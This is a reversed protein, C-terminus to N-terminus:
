CNEWYDTHGIEKEVSKEVRKFYAPGKDILIDMRKKAEKSFEAINRYVSSDPATKDLNIQLKIEIRLKEFEDSYFDYEKQLEPLQLYRHIYFMSAGLLGLSGFIIGLINMKELQTSLSITASGSITSLIIAPIAIGFNRFRMINHMSNHIKCRKDCYVEWRNLMQEIETEEM